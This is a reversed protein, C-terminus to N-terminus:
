LVFTMSIKFMLDEKMVGTNAAGYRYFSGIGLGVNGSRLVNQLELGSEVYGEEANSEAINIHRDPDLSKGIGMNHVLVVHPKFKGVQFLLDRFSHRLHVSAYEREFFTGTSMTEFTNPAAVSWQEASGKLVNMRFAPADGIVKAAHLFVSFEGFAPMRKKYALSASLRTWQIREVRADGEGVLLSLGLVPLKSGASIRRNRMEVIQEKFAWRITVEAERFDMNQTYVSVQENGQQVFAYDQDFDMVGLRVSSKLTLYGPLRTNFNLELKEVRDMQNVFFSYLGDNELWTAQGPFRQEGRGFVDNVYAVELYTNSLSRVLWKADGGYKIEKDKFGYGIYGGFFVKRFLLENTHAGLGLRFGERSNAALVRNLDFDVKNYRIKGSTLAQIWRYKKDFNHGRAISDIVVYTRKEKEDLQYERNALWYSEDHATALPDMKMVVEGIDRRRLEPNIQINKVYSRGIGIIEHLGSSISKFVLDTNLQVPFWQDGDILKYAQRIKIDITENPVGPEAIVHQLAYGNTNIHLQGKMGNIKASKKPQFSIVFVTDSASFTTDEMTFVYRRLASPHLPSLYQLDMLNVENEYFSFSQLQTGLLAFDPSKLGSVKSAKINEVSKDPRVFKRQSVSEMLLLHQEDFLKVEKQKSSDLSNILEPDAYLKSNRVGTIVLKNYSDYIFDCSKEPNNSSKVAIVKRMVTEAPNEGPRVVAESLSVPLPDLSVTLSGNIANVPIVHTRFGVYSCRLSDQPNVFDFEFKGDIDTYVGQNSETLVLTVFALPIGNSGDIVVGNLQATLRSFSVLGIFLFLLRLYNMM